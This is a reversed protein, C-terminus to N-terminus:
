SFPVFGNQRQEISDTIIRALALANRGEVGSVLPRTSNEICGLFSRIEELLTDRRETPIDTAVLEPVTGTGRRSVLAKQTQYDATYLAEGDFIRLIRKKEDSVRSSSILDNRPHMSFLVRGSTEPASPRFASASARIMVSLM